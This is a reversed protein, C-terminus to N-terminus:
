ALSASNRLSYVKIGAPAPRIILAGSQWQDEQPVRAPRAIDLVGGARDVVTEGKKGGRRRRELENQRGVSNGLM